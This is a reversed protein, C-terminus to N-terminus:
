GAFGQVAPQAHGYELQAVVAHIGPHTPLVKLLLNVLAGVAEIAPSLRHIYNEGIHRPVCRVSFLQM